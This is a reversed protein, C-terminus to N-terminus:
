VGAPLKKKTLARVRGALFEADRLNEVEAAIAAAVVFPAVRESPADALAEREVDALIDPASKPLGELTMFDRTAERADRSTSESYTEAEM